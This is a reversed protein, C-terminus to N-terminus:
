GTENRAALYAVFGGYSSIDTARGRADADAFAATVGSRGDELEVPQQVIGPPEGAQLAEWEADPVEFLRGPVAIGAEDDPVLAAWRDELSLLRYRAATRVDGLSRLGHQEPEDSVLASGIALVVRTV